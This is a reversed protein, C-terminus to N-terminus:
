SPGPIIRKLQPHLSAELMVPDISNISQCCCPICPIDSALLLMWHLFSALLSVAVHLAPVPYQHANALRFARVNEASVGVSSGFNAQGHV